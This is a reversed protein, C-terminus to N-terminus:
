RDTSLLLRDKADLSPDGIDRRRLHDDREVASADHHEVHCADGLALDTLDRLAVVDGDDAEDPARAMPDNRRGDLPGARPNRCRWRPRWRVESDRRGLGRGGPYTCEQLVPPEVLVLYTMTVKATVEGLFIFCAGQHCSASRLPWHHLAATATDILHPGRPVTGDGVDTSEDGLRRPARGWALGGVSTPFSRGVMAPAKRPPLPRHVMRWGKEFLSGTGIMRLSSDKMHIVQSARQACSKRTLRLNRWVDVDRDGTGCAALRLVVVGADVSPGRGEGLLPCSRLCSTADEERKGITPIPAEAPPRSAKV